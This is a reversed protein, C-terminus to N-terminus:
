RIRHFPRLRVRDQYPKNKTLKFMCKTTFYKTDRGIHLTHKEMNYDMETSKACRTTHVDRLGNHASLYM